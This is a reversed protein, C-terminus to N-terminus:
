PKLANAIRHVAEVTVDPPHGTYCFRFFGPEVCRLDTGPAVDVGKWNLHHRIAGEGGLKLWDRLDLWFFLAANSGGFHPIGGKELAGKVMSWANDLANAYTTRMLNFGGGGDAGIVASLALSNWTDFPSWQATQRPKDHVREDRNLYVGIRFGSLGFDKAFGWVVHVRHLHRPDIKLQLVSKFMPQATRTQSHMYIEDSVLHMPTADLVWDVITRLIEPDLNNGLPNDPNTLALALPKPNAAHYADQIMKLTLRFGDGPLRDVPIIHGEGCGGRQRFYDKLVWTFGHWCPTPLLFSPNKEQGVIPAIAHALAARTSAFGSVHAGGLRLDGVLGLTQNLLAAVSDRLAATGYSDGYMIDAEEVRRLRGFGEQLPKLLLVNEAVATSIFDKGKTSALLRADSEFDYYPMQSTHTVM